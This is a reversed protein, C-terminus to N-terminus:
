SALTRSPSMTRSTRPADFSSRNTAAPSDPNALVLRERHESSPLTGSSDARALWSMRPRVPARLEELADTVADLVEEMTEMEPVRTSPPPPASPVVFTKAKTSFHSHHPSPPATQSVRTSTRAVITNSDGIKQAAIAHISRQRYPQLDKESTHYSYTNTRAAYLDASSYSARFDRTPPLPDPLPKSFSLIPTSYRRADKAPTAIPNQAPKPKFSTPPAPQPAPFTLDNQDLQAPTSRRKNFSNTHDKMPVTRQSYYREKAEENLLMMSSLGSEASGHQGLEGSGSEGSSVRHLTLHPRSSSSPTTTAVVNELDQTTWTTSRRRVFSPQRSQSSSTPAPSVEFIEDSSYARGIEPGEVWETHGSEDTGWGKIEEEREGTGYGMTRRTKEPKRQISETDGHGVSSSEKRGSSHNSSKKKLVRSGKRNLTTSFLSPSSKPTPTQPNSDAPPTPTPSASAVRPFKAEPLPTTLFDIGHSWEAYQAASSARRPTPVETTQPLSSSQRLQVLTRRQRCWLMVVAFFLVSPVVVGIIWLNSPPM